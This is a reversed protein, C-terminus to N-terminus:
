ARPRALEEALASALREYDARDNYIQASIRLLRRPPAPWPVVPVEIGHRSFLAEQLPDLYLPSPCPAGDGDPLPITALAGIMSDPAPPACGLADCLRARAALATRRNHEALAPFGGPLLGQIFRLAEPLALLATPDSTGTWDFELRFRSRDTRPSNAGHSISLPRVGAQKDPRVYLFAAGKPACIWKHCNGTYYAVGLAAIDLAFMGPAHAGDVLVDVGRRALESAIRPLPFVLGTQSTVHDILVLRARPGVRELLADTIADPSPVPFPISAVVVRAGAREAAAVLANRSANYEQDTTVLEDGARLDLSRLVTNVGATANPVFAIDDEGAGVFAALAARAEDLLPELERTFFRVPESEMRERLRAQAGLVVRPCAGFSGHNLFVVSPDLGWLGRVQAAHSPPFDAALTV